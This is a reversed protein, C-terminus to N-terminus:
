EFAHDLVCPRDYKIEIVCDISPKNPLVIVIISLQVRFGYIQIQNSESTFIM